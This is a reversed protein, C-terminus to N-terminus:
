GNLNAWAWYLRQLMDWANLLAHRIETDWTHLLWSGLGAGLAFLLGLLILGFLYVLDTTVPPVDRAEDSLQLPKM